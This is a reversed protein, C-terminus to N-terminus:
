RFPHPDRATLERPTCLNTLANELLDITTDVSILESLAGERPRAALYHVLRAVAHRRQRCDIAQADLWRLARAEVDDLAQSFAITSAEMRSRKLQFPSEGRKSEEIWRAEYSAALDGAFVAHDIAAALKRSGHPAERLDFGM